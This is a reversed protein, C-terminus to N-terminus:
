EQEEERGCDLSFLEPKVGKHTYELVLVGNEKLRNVATLHADGSSPDNPLSLYVNRDILLIHKYRTM